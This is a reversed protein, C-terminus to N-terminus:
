DTGGNEPAIKIQGALFKRVPDIFAMIEPALVPCETIDIITHSARETFGAVAIGQARGMVSLRARRRSGVPSIEPELLSIDDFGRHSLALRIQEQKWRRYYDATVHQLSCGGCRGFHKCLPATRHPSPNHIHKIRGKQGQLKIELDDGDVAFPVYIPGDAVGDGRAGIHDIKVRLTM